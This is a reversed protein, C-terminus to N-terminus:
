PQRWYMPKDGLGFYYSMANPIGFYPHAIADIFLALILLFVLGLWSYDLQYSLFVAIGTIFLTSPTILDVV